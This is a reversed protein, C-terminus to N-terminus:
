HKCANSGKSLLACNGRLYRVSLHVEYYSLSGASLYLEVPFLCLGAFNSSQFGETVRNHLLGLSSQVYLWHALKWTM